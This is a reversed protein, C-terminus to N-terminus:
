PYLTVLQMVSRSAHRGWWSPSGLWSPTGESHHFIRVMISYGWSSPTDEGHHLIRMMITHVRFAPPLVLGEKQLSSKYPMKNGCQPFYYLHWGLRETNMTHAQYNVVSGWFRCGKAILCCFSLFYHKKMIILLTFLVELVNEESSEGWKYFYSFHLICLNLFVPDFYARSNEPIHM